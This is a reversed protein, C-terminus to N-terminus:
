ETGNGGLLQEEDDVGAKGAMEAGGEAGLVHEARWRGSGKSIIDEGGTFSTGQDGGAARSLVGSVQWTICVGEEALRQDIPQLPLGGITTAIDAKVFEVLM